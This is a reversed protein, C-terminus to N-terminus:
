TIDFYQSLGNKKCVSRTFLICEAHYLLLCADKNCFMCYQKFAINFRSIKLFLLIELSGFMCVTCYCICYLSGPMQM